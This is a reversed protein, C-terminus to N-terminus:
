GRGRSLINEYFQEQKRERPNSSNRAEAHQAATMKQGAPIGMSAHLGGEKFSIAPKGGRAPITRTGGARKKAVARAAKKMKGYSM